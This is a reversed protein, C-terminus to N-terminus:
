IHLYLYRGSVLQKCRCCMLNLTILIYVYVYFRVRDSRAFHEERRAKYVWKIERARVVYLTMPFQITLYTLKKEVRRKFHMKRTEAGFMRPLLSWLLFFNLMNANETLKMWMTPMETWISNKQEFRFLFFLRSDSNRNDSWYSFTCFSEIVLPSRVRFFHSSHFFASVIPKAYMHASRFPSYWIHSDTRRKQRRNCNAVTDINTRECSLKNVNQRKKEETSKWSVHWETTCLQVHSFNSSRPCRAIKTRYKCRFRGCM